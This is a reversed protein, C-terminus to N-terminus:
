SSPKNCFMLTKGLQIHEALGYVSDIKACLFECNPKFQNM